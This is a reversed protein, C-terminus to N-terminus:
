TIGRRRTPESIHILSLGLQKSLGFASIGYILGFNIAKASRRQNLDVDNINVGFVESATSLHIDEKNEFAKILGKDKSLHAM